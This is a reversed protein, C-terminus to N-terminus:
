LEEENKVPKDYFLLSSSILSEALL